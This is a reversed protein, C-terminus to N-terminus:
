GGQDLDGGWRRQSREWKRAGTRVARMEAEPEEPREAKSGGAEWYRSGGMGAASAGLGNLYSISRWGWIGSVWLHISVSKENVFISPM